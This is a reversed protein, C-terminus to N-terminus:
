CATLNPKAARLVSLLLQPGGVSFTIAVFIALTWLDFFTFCASLVIDEISRVFVTKLESLFKIALKEV